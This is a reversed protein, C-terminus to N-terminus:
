GGCSGDDDDDDDDDDSWDDDCDDSWDDDWWDDDTDDDTLSATDDDMDDDPSATDDNVDDDTPSATDDDATDDDDAADEDTLVRVLDLFYMDAMGAAYGKYHWRLYVTEGAYPTLDIQKETWSAGCSGHGCSDLVTWVSQDPSAEFKMDNQALGALPEKHYFSWSASAAGSLDIAPTMLASDIEPWGDLGTTASVIMMRDGDYALGFEPWMNFYMWSNGGSEDIDWGAPIQSEFSEDVLVEAHLSVAILSLVSVALIVLPIQLFIHRNM